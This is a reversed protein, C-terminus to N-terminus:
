CISVWCLVGRFFLVTTFDSGMNGEVDPFSIELAKCVCVEGLLEDSHLLALGRIWFFPGGLVHLKMILSCSRGQQHQKKCHTGKVRSVPTSSIFMAGCFMM